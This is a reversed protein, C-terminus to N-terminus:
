WGSRDSRSERADSRRNTVVSYVMCHGVSPGRKVDAMFGLDLPQTFTQGHLRGLLGRVRVSVSLDFKLFSDIANAANLCAARRYMQDSLKTDPVPLALNITPYLSSCWLTRRLAVRPGGEDKGRTM